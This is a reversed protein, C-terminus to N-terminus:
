PLQSRLSELQEKQRVTLQDARGVLSHVIAEAPQIDGLAVCSRALLLLLSADPGRIKLAEQFDQRADQYRGLDLFIEGRTSLLGPHGSRRRLAEDALALAEPLDGGRERVLTALNNLLIPDRKREIGARFAAEAAAFDGQQYYAVGDIQHKLYHDPNRDLLTRLSLQILPANGIEQALNGMMEWVVLNNADTQIAQELVTQAEPWRRLAMLRDALAIQVGIRGSALLKLNKISLELLSEDDSALHALAMWVRPDRVSQQALTQLAERAQTQNGQVYAIMARDFRVQEEKLGSALAEALYAEAVEADYRRIALRCLAMLATVDRGNQRLRMGWFAADQIPLGWQLYVQDLLTVRASENELSYLPDNRVGEDTAPNGSIAWVWGRRVWERAHLVYGHQFGLTWREEAPLGTWFDDDDADPGENPESRRSVDLINLRASLNDPNIRLAAHWTALGGAEDGREAQLFGLNNAVRSAIQLLYDYYPRILNCEPPASDRAVEWQAWFPQQAEALKSLDRQAAVSELKYFLGDPVLYGYERFVDPLDVFATRAIGASSQLLQDMFGGFDGQRLPQQLAAEDFWRALRALYEPSGARQLRVLQVPARRRWIMWRLADDMVGPSFLLDRGQMRDLIQGAASAMVDGYRGDVVRRNRLGAALVILPMVLVFVAALRRARRVFRRAFVADRLPQPEALIWFEGVIYGTGIALLLYPTVLLHSMGLIRWPSFIANFLAGLLGILLLIRLLVQQGSYFWPSRHSMTFLLLWTTASFFMIYVFVGPNQNPLRLILETQERLIQLWAQWPSAYLGTAAGHRFLVWANVPYWLLGLALGSWLALQARWAGQSRWCLCERAVLVVTLPLFVLFSAFETLGFGYLVGLLGLHRALGHRQYESFCWVALLLLLLHFTAPLSRTAVTWFPICAALYLGSVLGSFCRAQRERVVADPRPEEGAMYGVRVMLAGTLGVGAAGCLASLLAAGVAPSGGPLRAFIRILRGWAADLPPPAAELGIHLLLSQLPLGPFPEWSLTALYVALSLCFLFWGIQRATPFPLGGAMGKPVMEVRQDEASAGKKAPGSSGPSAASFDPPLPLSQGPETM